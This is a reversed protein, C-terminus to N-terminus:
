LDSYFKEAATKLRFGGGGAAGPTGGDDSDSGSDFDSSSEEMDNGGAKEADDDSGDSGEAENAADDDSMNVEDDEDDAFMSIDNFRVLNDHSYSALFMSDPSAQMGEVPFDEHDGLVGIIKNPHIGVARILGDSSGTMVSNEDIKYM